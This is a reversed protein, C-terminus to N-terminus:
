QIFAAPRPGESEYITAHAATVQRQWYSSDPPLAAIMFTLVLEPRQYSILGVSQSFYLTLPKM